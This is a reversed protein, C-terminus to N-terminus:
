EYLFLTRRYFLSEIICQDTKHTLGELGANYCKTEQEARDVVNSSTLTIKM